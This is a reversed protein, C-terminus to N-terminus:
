FESFQFGFGLDLFRFGSGEVRVRLGEIRLESGEGMCRVGFVRLM